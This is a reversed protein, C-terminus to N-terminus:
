RQHGDVGAAPHARDLTFMAVQDVFVARTIEVEGAADRHIQQPVAMGPQDTRDLALGFRQHVDGVEIAARLAFRQRLLQDVLGKGIRHEEGIRPGLRDLGRDLGRAGIVLMRIASGVPGLQDGEGIGEVPARHRRDASRVLLLHMLAEARQEGPELIGFEVIEVM